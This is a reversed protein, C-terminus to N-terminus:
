PTTPLTSRRRRHSIPSPPSAKLRPSLRTRLRRDRRHEALTGAGGVRSAKYFLAVAQAVISYHRRFSPVSNKRKLGQLKSQKVTRAERTRTRAVTPQNTRIESIKRKPSVNEFKSIPGSGHAPLQESTRRTKEHSKTATRKRAHASARHASASPVRLAM